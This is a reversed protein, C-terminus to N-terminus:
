GGRRQQDLQKNKDYAFVLDRGQIQGTIHIMQPTIGYGSRGVNSNGQSALSGGGGSHGGGGHSGGGISSFLAAMAAAAAAALGIAWPGPGSGQAAKAAAAAIAQTAYQRILQSTISGLGQAFSQQGSLINGAITGLQTGMQAAADAMELYRQKKREIMEQDARDVLDNLHKHANLIAQQEGKLKAVVMSGTNKVGGIQTDPDKMKGLKSSDGRDRELAYQMKLLDLKKQEQEILRQKQSLEVGISIKEKERLDAIEKEYFAINKVQSEKTKLDELEKKQIAAIIEAKNVNQEIAKSFAELSKWGERYYQNVTSQIAAEKEKLKNTEIQQELSMKKLALETALGGSTIAAFKEFISLNSSAIKLRDNLADLATGLIGTGNAANGLFVKVNEWSAGLKEIKTSNTEAAIGMKKLSEEAIEGVVKAVDAVSATETGVGKLKERLQVASIGLNDLILPSKRGIGTVISEVLYDVSQGTAIARQHAFEFLSGMQELPIQFNNAQVASKMLSLDSVTGQTAVRMEELVQQSNHLQDFANKVGQAQGALKSIEFGFTAIREVAFAGAFGTALETIKGKFGELMSNSKQLGAELKSLDMGLQVVLSNEM